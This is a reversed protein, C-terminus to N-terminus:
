FRKLNMIMRSLTALFYISYDLWYFEYCLFLVFELAYNPIGSEDKKDPNVTSFFYIGVILGIM